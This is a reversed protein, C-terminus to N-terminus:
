RHRGYHKGEWEVKDRYNHCMLTYFRLGLIVIQHDVAFAEFKKKADGIWRGKVEVWGGYEPLYFDPTYSVAKGDVFVTFTESEYEWKIGLFNLVRAFNAEWTSRMYVGLDPRVGGRVRPQKRQMLGNRYASLLRKSTEPRIAGRAGQQACRRSCYLNQYGRHKKKALECPLLEFEKDCTDCRVKVRPKTRGTNSHVSACSHSCFRRNKNQAKFPKGCEECVFEIWAIGKKRNRYKTACSRSCFQRKPRRWPRVDVFETGCGKCKM